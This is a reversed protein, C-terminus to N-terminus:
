LSSHRGSHHEYAEHSGIQWFKIWIDQDTIVFLIGINYLRYLQM